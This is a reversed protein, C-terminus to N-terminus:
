GPRSVSYNAGPTNVNMGELVMNEIASHYDELVCLIDAKVVTSGMEIMREIVDDLEATGISQVMAMYNDPDSTLNNELLVYNISM